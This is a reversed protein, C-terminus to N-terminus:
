PFEVFVKDGARCQRPYSEMVPFGRAVCEGFSNTRMTKQWPFIFCWDDECGVTVFVAFAVGLVVISAVLISIIKIEKSM